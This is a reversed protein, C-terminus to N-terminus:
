GPQRISRTRFEAFPILGLWEGDDTTGDYPVSGDGTKRLPIRGASYSGIHDATDAYTFNQPPGGYGSLAAVFDNWNRARNLALFAELDIIDADFATWRLALATSGIEFIVPGHRTVKVELKLSADGRVLIEETRYRRTVGAPPTKYSSPDAPDFQEFYLDQVDPCLNTIGWAIWENHGIMVGPVGPVAVGSVRLHGAGLHVIHWISPSTGPLHPDSALM